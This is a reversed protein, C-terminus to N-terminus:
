HTGIAPNRVLIFWQKVPKVLLPVQGYVM